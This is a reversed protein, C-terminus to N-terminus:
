LAQAILQAIKVAKLLVPRTALATTNPLDIAIGAAQVEPLHHLVAELVTSDPAPITEQAAIEEAITTLLPWVLALGGMDAIRGLTTTIKPVSVRWSRRWPSNWATVLDDPILREEDWATLILAATRDREKQTAESTLVLSVFSAVPGFRPATAVIYEFINLSFIGAAQLALGAPRASHEPLLVLAWPDEQSPHVPRYPLSWHSRIGLLEHVAPEDGDVEVRMPSAVGDQTKPTPLFRLEGPRAPHNRWHDIVTALDATVNHIPQEFASLDAPTEARDLRALAVAIDAPLVKVGAKRYHRARGAFVDWAIHFDTHTPTSLLCPLEGLRNLAEVARQAALLTLPKSDSTTPHQPEGDTRRGLRRLLRALLSRNSNVYRSSTRVVHRVRNPGRAHATAVFAALAHEQLGPNGRRDAELKVILTELDLDDLVLTTSSLGHLPQPCRGAPARWLGPKRLTTESHDAVTSAPVSTPSPQQGPEESPGSAGHSWHELLQEALAASTTDQQAAILRVADLLDQSPTLIRSVAKMMARRLSKQQHPLVTLALNTLDTDALDASLLQTVALKVFSGGARPLATFVHRRETRLLPILDLGELWLMAVRQATERDGRAFIQLLARLLAPDDTPEVSRLNHIDHAIQKRYAIKDSLRVVFINPTACAAIFRKEWRCGSTPNSHHRMWGLWYRPDAPLPLGFADILPDLLPPLHEGLSAKKLATAIFRRAWKEDHTSIREAVYDHAPKDNALRRISFTTLSAVLQAPTVDLFAALVICHHESGVPARRRLLPLSRTALTRQEPSLRGLEDLLEGTTRSRNVIRDLTLEEPTLSRETM